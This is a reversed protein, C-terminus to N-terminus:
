LAFIFNQLPQLFAFCFLNYLFSSARADFICFAFGNKSFFCLTCSVFGSISLSLYFGSLLRFTQFFCHEMHFLRCFFSWFGKPFLLFIPIRTASAFLKEFIIDPASPKGKECLEPLRPKLASGQMPIKGNLRKLWFSQTVIFLELVCFNQATM